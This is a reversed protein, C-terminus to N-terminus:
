EQYVIKGNVITMLTKTTLIDPADITMIDNRLITFDALKGTEITGLDNERFSAYAPGQTFLKLAEHRTLKQDPYWGEASFGTLDKRTIAAYFEVRLDGREVPADSGGAIIAGSDILDRWAYGGKLREVGIRDIAFHLDGIAHSPQMSAIVGLETFRPIDDETLIQAHEIRFRPDAMAREHAPIAAFTEEYWDLVLTNGRDGIAHTSVQIGHELALKFAELADSKTLTILGENNVDDDYPAHLAAGRSGLAGDAYLKVARNTVMADGGIDDIAPLLLSIAEPTYDYANYVRLNLTADDTMTNMIDLHSAEVSMNHLGTWGNRTYVDSATAYALKISEPTSSTESLPQLLGMANDILMGTPQGEEDKLIDGGFPAETEATIGAINLAKSNAILAHGDARILIVAIDPAVEDLDHRNPFREEPWHTEIWGRGILTAGEPLSNAIPKLRSKLDDISRTGELNLTLERQGIGYLHAHADTFGPYVAGETRLHTTKSGLHPKCKDSASVCIIRNAKVAIQKLDAEASLGSYIYPSSIFLDAMQTQVAKGGIEPKEDSCSTLTAAIALPLAWQFRLM